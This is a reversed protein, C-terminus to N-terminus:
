LNENRPREMEAKVGLLEFKETFMYQLIHLVGLGVPATCRLAHMEERHGIADAERVLHFLTLHFDRERGVQNEDAHAEHRRKVGSRKMGFAPAMVLPTRLM